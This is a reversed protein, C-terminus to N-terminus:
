HHDYRITGRQEAAILLRCLWVCTAQVAEWLEMAEAGCERLGAQMETLRPGLLKEYAHRALRLSDGLEGPELAAQWGAPGMLGAVVEHFLTGTLANSRSGSSAYDGATRLIERRIDSISLQAVFLDEKDPKQRRSRNFFRRFAAAWFALSGHIVVRM